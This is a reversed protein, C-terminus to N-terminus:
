KIVYINAFSSGEEDVLLEVDVNIKKQQYYVIRKQIETNLEERNKLPGIMEIVEGVDYFQEENSTSFLIRATIYSAYILSVSLFMLIIFIFGYVNFILVSVFVADLWFFFKKYLFIMFISSSILLFYTMFLGMSVIWSNKLLSLIQIFLTADKDIYFYEYTYFSYFHVTYVTWCIKLLLSVYYRKKRSKINQRM